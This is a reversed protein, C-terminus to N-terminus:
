VSVCFSFKYSKSDAAIATEGKLAKNSNKADLPYDLRYFAM